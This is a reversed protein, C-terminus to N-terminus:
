GGTQQHFNFLCQCYWLLEVACWCCMEDLLWPFAQLSIVVHFAGGLWRGLYIAEKCVGVIDTCQRLLLWSGCASVIVKPTGAHAACGTCITHHLVQLNRCVIDSM